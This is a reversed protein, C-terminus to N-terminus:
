DHLEEECKEIWLEMGIDEFISLAENLCKKGKEEEGMENYLRSEEYLLKSLETKNETTKLAEKGKELEKQAREFKEKKRFISGLIRHSMCKKIKKNARKSMKLAKEGMDLAKDVKNNMAYLNALDILYNIKMQRYDTEDCIEIGKLYYDEALEEKKKEKYIAGLHNYVMVLGKKCNTEECIELCKEHIELSDDLDGRKFFCGGVNVLSAIMGRQDSIESWIEKSKQYYEIAKELQGKKSYINGINNLVSGIGRKDGLIKNKELSRQYHDLAKDLKGQDLYIAGMSNLSSAQGDIDDKKKWIKLSKNLYDLGRENKGKYLYVTGLTQKIDAHEREEIDKCIELAKLLGKEALEYKGQRMLTKGKRCLLRCREINEKEKSKKKLGKDLFKIAEDFKGQREYIEAVKRYIKQQYHTNSRRKPIKNYYELSREYQGIIKNVDGLKELIEWKKKEEVEIKESLELAKKYMDEADEHAYVSETKEAAKLYYEFGNSFENGREYHYAIDSYYKEVKDEFLEEISKAVEKHLDKKIPEPISEYVVLHILGHSFYLVNDDLDSRWIGLETLIYIYELLDINKMGIISKLLPYPIEEGIVSGVQLIKLNKQNLRNIRSEIIDNVVSPLDINETESPYKNRKIDITGNELMEKVLEKSFLPNGESTKHIIQVIDDPVDIKGLESQIIEKTGKRNLPKLELENFINERNMRRLVESLFDDQAVDEPRFACIFFIPVNELKKTLYHFLMLSAKDAWQLDDIFIVTPKDNVFSKIKKTTESFMLNRRSEKKEEDGRKWDEEGINEFRLLDVGNQNNLDEFAERFPIYPESSDYHGKGNLFRHDDTLVSQKFVNVLRTKGVGANGKILLTSCNGKKTEDLMDSLLKLEEKRGTFVDEKKNKVQALDLVNKKNIYNLGVLLPNKSDIYSEVNRLLIENENGEYTKVTVTQRGWKKKLQKAKEIGENTLSYVKRRRPFGKIHCTSEEILGKKILIRLLASTRNQSLNVSEAIGKQSIGYPVTSEEELLIQNYFLHLIIRERGPASSM